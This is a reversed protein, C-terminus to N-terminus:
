LTPSRDCWSASLGEAEQDGENPLVTVKSLVGGGGQQKGLASCHSTIAKRLAQARKSLHSWEVSENLTMDAEISQVHASLV